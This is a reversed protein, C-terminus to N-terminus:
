KRDLTPIDVLIISVLVVGILGGIAFWRSEVSKSQVMGGDFAIWLM